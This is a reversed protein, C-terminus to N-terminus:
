ITRYSHGTRARGLLRCYLETMRGALRTIDYHDLAPAPPLRRQGHATAALIAARLAHSDPSVRTAGPAASPPLEDLAPCATYLVPLGAALGEVVALGFTEETSPAVLLDMTSLLGSVHPAEGTFRADIGLRGAMTTLTRRQPGDGVILASVGPLDRIARLVLDVGKEPVLRGVAGVVFEDAPIGFQARLGARRAPDFQYERPDIGNQITHIRPRPVGWAALRRAVTRSVAITAEGLRESALYLARVGPSIRRGEIFRGGLSHETAVVHRVGALRAAVRGYVCARYLHTHVIDFRGSRILGVLRPLAGLDTNGRMGVDHVLTGEARIARAVTGPNTLTAVEADTDLHRLLLRLQQEAGGAHLGTIVHLVRM